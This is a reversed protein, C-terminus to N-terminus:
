APVVEEFRGTVIRALNALSETGEEFYSSHGVAGDTAFEEAGFGPAVPNAGHWLEAAGEHQLDLLFWIPVLPSPVWGPLEKPNIGAGIPDWNATAAWVTGGPRILADAAADLTTGPSGVFVLEDVDLGAAAAVGAVVSGYSHGIVSVHRSDDPDIGEVFSRLSARGEIAAARWVADAGDPPDYGLWAITATSGGGDGPHTAQELNRATARFGGGGDSFSGLEKRIGPVVVAINGAFELDGFVEVVRGDGRPDFLLIQRDEDLWRRLEEVQRERWGVRSVPPYGLHLLSVVPGIGPGAAGSSGMASPGELQRLFRSILIRNAQYRLQPPAGDLGGILAPADLVLRAALRPSLADFRRAVAAPGLELLETPSPMTSWDLLAAARRTPECAATAAFEGATVLVLGAETELFPAIDRAEAILAARWRLESAASTLERGTETLGSGPEVGDLRAINSHFLSVRAAGQDCSDALHALGDPDIGRFGGGSV